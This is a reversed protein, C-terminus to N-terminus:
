STIVIFLKLVPVSQDNMPEMSFGSPTLIIPVGKGKVTWIWFKVYQSM